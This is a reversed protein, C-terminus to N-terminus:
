NNLLGQEKWAIIKDIECQTLRYGKPMLDPDGEPRTIVYVIGRQSSDDAVLSIQNYTELLIDGAPYEGVHCSKCNSSIIPNIDMEFSVFNTDCDSIGYLSEENDYTCSNLLFISLFAFFINKVHM